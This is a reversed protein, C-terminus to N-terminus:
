PEKEQKLLKNKEIAEKIMTFTLHELLLFAMGLMVSAMFIGILEGVGYFGTKANDERAIEVLTHEDKMEFVITCQDSLLKLNREGAVLSVDEMEYIAELGQEELANLQEYLYNWEDTTAPKWDVQSAKVGFIIAVFIGALIAMVVKEKHKKMWSYMEKM